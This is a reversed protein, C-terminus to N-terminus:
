TEKYTYHKKISKMHNGKNTTYLIDMINEMPGIFDRNDLM